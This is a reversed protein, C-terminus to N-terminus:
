RNRKSMLIKVTLVIAFLAGLICTGWILWLPLENEVYVFVSNGTSFSITDTDSTLYGVSNYSTIRAGNVTVPIQNTVGGYTVVYTKQKDQITVISSAGGTKIDTFNNNEQSDTNTKLYEELTQAKVGGDLHNINVFEVRVVVTTGSQTIYKDRVYLVRYGAQYDGESFADKNM